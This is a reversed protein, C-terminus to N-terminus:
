LILLSIYNLCYRVNLMVYCKVDLMDLMKLYRTYSNYRKNTVTKEFFAPLFDAEYFFWDDDIEFKTFNVIKIKENTYTVYFDRARVETTDGVFCFKEVIDLLQTNLQMASFEEETKTEQIACTRCNLTMLRSWNLVVVHRKCEASTFRVSFPMITLVKALFQLKWEGEKEM